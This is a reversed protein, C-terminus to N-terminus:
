GVMSSPPHAYEFKNFIIGQVEILAWSNIEIVSSM